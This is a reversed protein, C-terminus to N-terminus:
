PAARRKAKDDLYAAFRYIALTPTRDSKHGCSCEYICSCTAYWRESAPARDPDACGVKMEHRELLLLAGARTRRKRAGSV